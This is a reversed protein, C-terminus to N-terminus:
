SEDVVVEVWAREVDSERYDAVITGRATVWVM